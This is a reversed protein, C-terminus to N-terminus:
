AMGKITISGTRNKLVGVVGQNNQSTVNRRHVPQLYDQIHKSLSCPQLYIKVFAGNNRHSHLLGLHSSYSADKPALNLTERL